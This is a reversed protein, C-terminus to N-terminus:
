GAARSTRSTRCDSADPLAGMQSDPGGAGLSARYDTEDPEADWGATETRGDPM